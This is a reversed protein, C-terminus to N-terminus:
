SEPQQDESQPPPQEAKAQSEMWRKLADLAPPAVYFVQIDSPFQVRHDERIFLAASEGDQLTEGIKEGIKEFRQQLTTQFGEIAMTSVKRSMPGISLVRQWDFHEEVVERDETVELRASGSCMAQIFTSGQPNLSELMSSAEDGEAYLMEHYVHSVAGLSRELNGIADRVESWYRELHKAGEEPVAPPFVYNPVLFIKRTGAYGEASPKEFQSLPQTM